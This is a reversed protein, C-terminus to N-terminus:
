LRLTSIGAFDRANNTLLPLDFRLATAAVWCDGPQIPRGTSKRAAFIEAWRHIMEDDPLLITCQKISDELSDRRPEGWRRGRAWARIEAVSMFSMYVIRGALVREFAPARTDGKFIFSFVDSDM